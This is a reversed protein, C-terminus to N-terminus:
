TACTSGEAAGPSQGTYGITWTGRNIERLMDEIVPEDWGTKDKVLKINKVFEAGFGFKKAFAYM